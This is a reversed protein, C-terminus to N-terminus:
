DTITIADPLIGIEGNPCVVILDYNNPHLGAPITAAITYDNIFAVNDISIALNEPDTNSVLFVWPTAVFQRDIEDGFITIITSNATPFTAPSVYLIKINVINSINLADHFYTITGLNNEIYIDYSGSTIGSPITANIKNTEEDWTFDLTNITGSIQNRLEIHTPYLDLSLDLAIM